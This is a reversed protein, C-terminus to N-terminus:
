VRSGSAPSRAEAVARDGHRLCDADRRLLGGGPQRSRRRSLRRSRRPRPLRLPRPPRLSRCPASPNFAGNLTNPHRDCRFQYITADILNVTWTPQETARDVHRPRCRRRPSPLQAGTGQDNVVVTYTGAPLQTVRSGDDFTLSIQFDPGVSACPEVLGPKELRSRRDPAGADRRARDDCAPCPRRLPIRM